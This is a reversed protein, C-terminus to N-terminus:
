TAVKNTKSFHDIHFPYWFVELFLFLPVTSSPALTICDFAVNTMRNLLKRKNICDQSTEVSLNFTGNTTHHLLFFSPKPQTTPLETVLDRKPSAWLSRPVNMYFLIFIQAVSKEFVILFHMNKARRKTNRSRLVYKLFLSQIVPTPM